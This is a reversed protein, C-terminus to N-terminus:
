RRKRAGGWLVTVATAVATVLLVNRAGVLGIAVAEHEVVDVYRSPVEAFTLAM